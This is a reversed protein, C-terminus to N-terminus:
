LQLLQPSSSFGRGPSQQTNQEYPDTGQGGIWALTHSSGINFEQSVFFLILVLIGRGARSPLTKARRDARLRVNVSRLSRPGIIRLM